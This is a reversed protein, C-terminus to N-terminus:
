RVCRLHEYMRRTITLGHAELAPVTAKVTAITAASLPRTM